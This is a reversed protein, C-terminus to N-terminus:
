KRDTEPSSSCRSALSVYSSTRHRVFSSLGVNKKNLNFIIRLWYSVLIATISAGVSNFPIWFYDAPRKIRQFPYFFQSWLREKRKLTDKPEESDFSRFSDFLENSVLLEKSDFPDNQHVSWESKSGIYTFTFLPDQFRRITDWKSNVDILKM